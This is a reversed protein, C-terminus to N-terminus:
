HMTFFKLHSPYKKSRYVRQTAKQFDEEKANYIDVFTQPNCDVLPFWSSQVQVMIKHGKLFTHNMDQLKFSVKTVQNPIFPQPVEYSNRFKGRMVEGRVMMQFGGAKVLKNGMEYNPADFPFVDVIKVVWDSDTGSTSVYLEATVPGAITVDEALADSEYVLVDPRTSAFRQDEVKYTAVMTNYIGATFPVPRAPDSIYEDFAQEGKEGPETFSLTENANFFLEGPKVHAPPWQDYSKWQNSGTEFVTVPPLNLKEKGNGKLFHKFFVFEIHENYYYGTKSGWRIDGLSEGKSGAWQMHQWPGMVLLTKTEPSQTKIASYTNLAGYLNEADFWGGVVMVAPKIATLHPLTNRAKWFDDYTGHKMLKNWFAVKNKFYKKNINALPGTKLFFRYGDTSLYQFGTVAKTTLGTRPLGFYRLFSFAHALFFAGHHHWDDGMFWDAIPAQPSVAALAPHADIAAMATYTGPYSGGWIGVRGNHNPLNKVLWDITDYADSSEDVDSNSRKNEIIPRMNVFEGESMYRGRIDQYVFIFKEEAHYWSPGLWNKFKNEGYPRASYPTRRMLIPYKHSKEKPIYVQTFLKKGDRMPVRYEKKTYHELAYALRYGNLNQPDMEVSKKYFKIAPEKEGNTMYGEALSDYGNAYKPYVEVNLKFIAIAEKIKDSRLLRYGLTNLEKEEFNYSNPDKKKLAHYEKIAAEIGNENVTKLLLDVISKKKVQVNSDQGYAAPEVAFIPASLGTLLIFVPIFRKLVWTKNKKMFSNNM